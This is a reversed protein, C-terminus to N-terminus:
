AELLTRDSGMHWGHVTQRRGGEGLPRTPREGGLVKGPASFPLCEGFPANGSLIEYVVMGFAYRDSEKTCRRGKVGFRGPEILESSM